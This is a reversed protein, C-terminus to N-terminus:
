ERADVLMGETFDSKDYYALKGAKDIFYISDAFEIANMAETSYIVTRVRRFQKPFSCQIGKNLVFDRLTNLLREATVEDLKVTPKQLCLIDPSAILARVINMLHLTSESLKDAWHGTERDEEVMKLIGRRLGIMKCISLLRKMKKDPDEPKCGFFMNNSITGQFFLPQTGLYMVRSHSPAAIDIQGTPSPFLVSGVLKLLTSKGGARPSAVAVLEGQDIKVIDDEKVTDVGKLYAQFGKVMIPADDIDADGLDLTARTKSAQQALMNTPMNLFNAIRILAPIAAQISVVENYLDSFMAGMNHFININTVFYGVSTHGDIVALGGIVMYLAVVCASCWQAFYKNNFIVKGSVFLTKNRHQIEEELSAEVVDQKSYTTIMPLNKCVQDIQRCFLYNRDAAQSLVQSTVHQRCTLFIAMLIPFAGMVCLPFVALPKDFVLPATFQFILIGVLKGIPSFMGIAKAYMKEAVEDTYETMAVLLGTFGLDQRKEDECYIYHRLLSSQLTRRTAGSVGKTLYELLHLLAFPIMRLAVLLYLTAHREHMFLVSVDEHLDLAYDLLYVNMFLGALYNLNVMQDVAINLFTRSRVTPDRFNLSLFGKVLTFKPVDEAHGDELLERCDNCPFPDDNFVKVRAEIQYRDLIGNVLGEPLLFVKFELITDWLENPILKIEISQSSQGPEFILTGKQGIFCSGATASADFTSYKCESRKTLDGIRLVKIDVFGQEEQSLYESDNFMLTPISSDVDQDTIDQIEPSSAPRSAPFIDASVSQEGDGAASFTSAMGMMRSLRDSQLSRESRRSITQSIAVGPEESKSSYTSKGSLVATVDRHGAAYGRDTHSAMCAKNWLVNHNKFMKNLLTIVEKENQPASLWEYIVMANLDTKSEMLPKYSAM